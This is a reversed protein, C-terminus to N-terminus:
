KTGKGKKLWSDGKIDSLHPRLSAEFQFCRTILSKFGDSIFKGKKDSLHHAWFDNSNNDKIKNYLWNNEIPDYVINKFRKPKPPHNPTAADCEFPLVGFKLQFLIVALAWTDSQYGYFPIQRTEEPTFYGPTGCTEHDKGDKEQGFLLGAYGLDIIKINYDEDFMLNTLKLDRHTFQKSNMIELAIVLDMAVKKVLNETLNITQKRDITEISDL